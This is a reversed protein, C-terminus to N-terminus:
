SPLMRNFNEKIQGKSVQYFTMAMRESEGLRDHSVWYNQDKFGVIEYRQSIIAKEDQKNYLADIVLHHDPNVYGSIFKEKESDTGIVGPLLQIAEQIKDGEYLVQAIEIDNSAISFTWSKSIDNLQVQNDSLVHDFLGERDKFLSLQYDQGKEQLGIQWEPLFHLYFVQATKQNKIVIVDDSHILSYIMGGIFEDLIIKKNDDFKIVDADALSKQAENISKQVAVEEMRETPDDVGFIWGPGFYQLLFWLEMKSLNVRYIKPQRLVKM